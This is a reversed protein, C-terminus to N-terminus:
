FLSLSALFKSKYRFHFIIFFLLVPVSCVALLYLCFLDVTVINWTATTKISHESISFSWAELLGQLGPLSFGSFFRYCLHSSFLKLRWIGLTCGLRILMFRIIQEILEGLNQTIIGHDSFRISTKMVSTMIVDLDMWLTQVHWYLLSLSTLYSTTTMMMLMVCNTNGLDM